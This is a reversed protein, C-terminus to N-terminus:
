VREKRLNRAIELVVELHKLDQEKAPTDLIFTAYGLEVYRGLERGVTAYDGVFYPCFTKFTKFPHMWYTGDREVARSLREHWRSDSRSMALRHNMRGARDEPFRTLAVEWAEAASPRAIVGIRMGQAITPDAPAQLDPREPYVIGTADLARAAAMGAPSSGSVLFRPALDAGPVDHLRLGSASYYEGDFTVPTRSELLQKMISAYEVARDYRADHPLGEGMAELDATFGGAVINLDVRRQYLHALGSVFKAATFPHMYAAQVAVLPTLQGTVQIINQAILWPDVSRNDTYVLVGEYGARDSWRAVERVRELYDRGNERGSPPCTGYITLAAPTATM